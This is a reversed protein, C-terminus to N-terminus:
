GWFAACLEGRKGGVTVEQQVNEPERWLWQQVKPPGISFDTPANAKAQTVEIGVVLADLTPSAMFAEAIM